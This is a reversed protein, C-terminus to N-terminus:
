SSVIKRRKRRRKRRKKGNEVCASMVPPWPLTYTFAPGTYKKRGYERKLEMTELDVSFLWTKDVPSLMVFGEQADIIKIGQAFYKERHGSLGRAAEILQVRMHLVWDHATGHYGHAQSFVELEGSGALHVIRVAGAGGGVVRFNHRGFEQWNMMHESLAMTSFKLTREDLVVVQKDDCGWYIRGGTRGALHVEVLRPLYVGYNQRGRRWGGNSGGTFMSASLYGHGNPDMYLNVEHEYLVLLLRFNALGIGANGDLLFASLICVVSYEPPPIALYRRTLPECVLEKEILLLLLSGRGDVLERPGEDAPPLFDLSLQLGDSPSASSPVFVPDVEPWNHHRGYSCLTDDYNISYFTGIAPPAHLSRFRCLFTGHTGTILRCWPKCTAAARVLWKPSDLGLLVLELLDDNLDNISTAEAPHRKRKREEAIKAQWNETEM